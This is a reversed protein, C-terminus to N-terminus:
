HTKQHHQLLRRYIVKIKNMIPIPPYDKVKTIFYNSRLKWDKNGPNFTQFHNINYNSNSKNNNYIARTNLLLKRIGRKYPKNMIKM